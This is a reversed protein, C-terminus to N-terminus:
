PTLRGQAELVLPHNQPFYVKLIALAKALHEQTKKDEGLRKESKALSLSLIAIKPHNPGLVEMATNLAKELLSKASADDGMIRYAKALRSMYPLASYTYNVGVYRKYIGLAVEDLPRAKEEKKLFHFLDALAATADGVEVSDAPHDKQTIELAERLRSEAEPFQRDALAAKALLDLTTIRQSPTERGKEAIGLGRKLLTQAAQGQHLSLRISGLRNLLCLLKGPDSGTKNDLISLAKQGYFAAEEWQGWDDYLAALDGLTEATLPDTPGLARERLALGWKLSAEAEPYNGMYRHITAIDTLIPVVSPHTPGYRNEAIRLANQEAKLADSFFGDKARAAASFKAVTLQDLSDMQQEAESPGLAALALTFFLFPLPLQFPRSHNKM